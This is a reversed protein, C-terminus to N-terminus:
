AFSIAKVFTHIKSPIDLLKLVASSTMTDNLAWHIMRVTMTKM